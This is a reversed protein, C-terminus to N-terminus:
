LTPELSFIPLLMSIVIFAVMVGMFLIIIPEILSTLMKISRDVDTEYSSAVKTLVEPLRATEEGVAIMNTMVPPFMSSARMIRAMSSGQTVEDIITHIEESLLKNNAVEKTIELAELIPVGNSLLSGLTRAFRGLEQKLVVNGILPIRLKIRDIIWKGEERRSFNWGLGILFAGGILLLWWYGGIFTSFKIMLTTILPLTQQMEGFISVIKPVVVTMLIIMAVISASVMILPYVMTSKVKSKIDQEKEALDALREMVVDLFGGREGAKVMSCYLRDFIKPHKGMAKSLSEGEQVDQLIENIIEALHENSTQNHIVNLAKVLPVGAGILDAMQRNFNVVDSLAIKGKFLSSLSQQEKKAASEDKIEIPFYGMSQLRNLVASRHEAELSGEIVAGQTDKAKYSFSAM